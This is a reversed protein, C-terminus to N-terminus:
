AHPGLSLENKAREGMQSQAFKLAPTGQRRDARGANPRNSARM